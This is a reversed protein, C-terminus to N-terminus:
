VARQTWELRGTPFSEIYTRFRVQLLPTRGVDHLSPQSRERRNAVIVQAMADVAVQANYGQIFGHKSKM